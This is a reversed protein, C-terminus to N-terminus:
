QDELERADKVSFPKETEREKVQWFQKLDVKWGCKLSLCKIQVPKWDETNIM